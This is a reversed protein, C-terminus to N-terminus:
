QERHEIVRLPRGKLAGDLVNEVDELLDLWAFFTVGVLVHEVCERRDTCARM